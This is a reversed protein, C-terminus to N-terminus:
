NRIQMKWKEIKGEAPMVISSITHLPHVSHGLSWNSTWHHSENWCNSPTKAYNTSPVTPSPQRWNNETGRFQSSHNWQYPIWKTSQARESHTVGSDWFHWDIKILDASKNQIETQIPLIVAANRNSVALRVSRRTRMIFSIMWPMCIMLIYAHSVDNALTTSLILFYTILVVVIVIVIM